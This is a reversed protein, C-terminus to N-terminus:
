QQQGKSFFHDYARSITPITGARVSRIFRETALMRDACERCESLHQNIRVVLADDAMECLYYRELDNTSIHDMSNDLGLRQPRVSSVIAM